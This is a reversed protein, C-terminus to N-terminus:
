ALPEVNTEDAMVSATQAARHDALRRALAEDSLALIAADTTDKYAMWAYEGGNGRKLQQGKRYEDLEACEVGAEALIQRPDDM